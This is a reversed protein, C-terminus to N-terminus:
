CVQLMDLIVTTLFKERGYKEEEKEQCTKRQFFEYMLYMRLVSFELTMNNHFSSFTFNLM